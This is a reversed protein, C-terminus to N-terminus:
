QCIDEKFDLQYYIITSDLTLPSFSNIIFAEDLPLATNFREPARPCFDATPGSNMSYVVALLMVKRQMASNGEPLCNFLNLYSHVGHSCLVNIYHLYLIVLLKEERVFINNIM